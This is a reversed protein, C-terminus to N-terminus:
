QASTESSDPVIFKYFAANATSIPIKVQISGTTEDSSITAGELSLSTWADLSEATQLTFGITVYGDEVKMVPSGFAMERLSDETYVDGNAIATEVAQTLTSTPLFTATLAVADESATLTLSTNFKQTADSLGEWGTFTYGSEAVVSLTMTDGVYIASPLGSISGGTQAVVSFSAQTRATFFATM